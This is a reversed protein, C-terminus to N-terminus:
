GIFSLVSSAILFYYLKFFFPNRKVLQFFQSKASSYNRARYLSFAFDFDSKFFRKNIVEMNATKGDQSSIGFRKICSKRFDSEYNVSQLKQSTQNEHIRYLTVTDNHKYFKTIQSLRVNLDWDDAPPLSENFTGVKDLQDKRFIATSFLVYNTELLRHYIWGSLAEVCETGKLHKQPFDYDGGSWPKFEGYVVGVDPLENFLGVQIDLKDVHWIDDHDLFCVYKGQAIELGTNRAGAIGKNEQKIIHIRPDINSIVAETNDTVGDIVVIIEFESYSQQLVSKITELIFDEGKYTPLIISVLDRM